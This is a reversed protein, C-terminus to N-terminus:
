AGAATAAIAVDAAMAMTEGAVRLPEVSRHARALLFAGELLMVFTTALDRTRESPVGVSVFHVALRDVWEDFVTSCAQRIPESVSAMELSVTAVPCADAFDVLQLTQAASAFIERIATPLHDSTTALIGDVLDGYFRGAWRVAEAGLEEKGGPFFHYVSGFPAGAQAVIQKMGTAPYGQRWMLQAGAELIRQRTANV